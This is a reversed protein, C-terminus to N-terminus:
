KNLWCGRSASWPQTGQKSLLWFGYELNDEWKYINYGMKLADSEHFYTNIQWYGIDKGVVAHNGVAGSYVTSECFIIKRALAEDQGYKIALRSVETDYTKEVILIVPEPQEVVMPTTGATNFYIATGTM